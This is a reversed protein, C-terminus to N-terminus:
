TCTLLVIFGPCLRGLVAVRVENNDVLKVSDGADRDDGTTGWQGGDDGTM